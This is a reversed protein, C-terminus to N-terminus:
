LLNDLWTGLNRGYLDRAVIDGERNILYSSPLSSVNYIRDARTDPYSLESVNIWPFENFDIANMWQIKNNDLSIAYIEFGKKHYAEYTPKLQLLQNISAQDASAWFVVLLANGKFDTLSIENGDRDPISLDLVGKAEGAMELLTNLQQSQNFEAERRTIDARLSKTLSSNPFAVELSDAVVKFYQLDAPLGMVMDQEDYKQYLAYVSSLSNMHEVLYKITFRKQSVITQAYANRVLKMHPSEPDEVSAAVNQLSDLVIRTQDLQEVLVRINDSEESGEISYARDFSAASTTLNINEGPSILLNVIKGNGYRLIFLEAEELKTSISFKGGKGITASDVLATRNVDLRELILTQGEGEEVTGRISVNNRECAVGALFLIIFVTYQIRM